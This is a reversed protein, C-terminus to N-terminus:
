EIEVPTQFNPNVNSSAVVGFGVGLFMYIEQAVNLWVPNTLDAANYGVATAGLALGIVTFTIYLVQRAKPSIFELVNKIPM